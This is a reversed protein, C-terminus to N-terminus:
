SSYFPVYTVVDGVNDAEGNAYMRTGQWFALAFGAYSCFYEVSFLVAFNPSKKMGLKEIKRVIEEYRKALLPQLWFAQVTRMSAFTEEALSGAVSQLKVIEVEQKQAIVLCISTVIVIVPIISSTIGALKPQSIFAVIFAAFFQAIGQVMQGLKESIGLNVNNGNTTVQVSISKTEAQDFYSIEQRLTAQLFHARLRKTV